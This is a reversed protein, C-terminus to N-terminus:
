PGLIRRFKCFQPYWDKPYSPVDRDSSLDLYGGGGSCLERFILVIVDAFIESLGKLGPLAMHGLM